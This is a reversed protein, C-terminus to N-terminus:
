CRMVPASFIIKEAKYKSCLFAAMQIVMQKYEGSIDWDEYDNFLPHLHLGSSDYLFVAMLPYMSTVSDEEDISSVKQMEFECGSHEQLKITISQKLSRYENYINSDTVVFDDKDFLRVFNLLFIYTSFERPNFSHNYSALFSDKYFIQIEFKNHEEKFENINELVRQYLYPFMIEGYQIMKKLDNSFMLHSGYYGEQVYFFFEFLSDEFLSDEITRSLRQETVEYVSIANTDQAFLRNYSVFLLLIISAAICCRVTKNIYLM